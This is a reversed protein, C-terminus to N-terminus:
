RICTCTYSDLPDNRSVNRAIWTRTRPIIKCPTEQVQNLCSRCLWRIQWSSIPRTAARYNREAFQLVNLSQQVLTPPRFLPTKMRHRSFRWWRSWWLFPSCRTRHPTSFLSPLWFRVPRIASRTWTCLVRLYKRRNCARHHYKSRPHRLVLQTLLKTILILQNYNISNQLCTYLTNVIASGQIEIVIWKQHSPEFIRIWYELPWTLDMGIIEHSADM